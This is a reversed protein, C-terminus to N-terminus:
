SKIRSGSPMRKNGLPQLRDLLKDLEAAKIQEWQQLKNGFHPHKDNGPGAFARFLIAEIDHRAKNLRISSMAESRGLVMLGASNRQHTVQRFGFWSVRDWEKAHKDSLHKRLRRGLQAAIGVYYLGYNGYLVYIGSQSWFDAVRLSSRKSGLHGLLRRKGKRGNPVWETDEVKWSLGYSSILSRGTDGQAM